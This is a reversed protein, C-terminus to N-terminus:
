AWSEKEPEQDGARSSSGRKNGLVPRIAGLKEGVVRAGLGGEEEKPQGSIKQRVWKM